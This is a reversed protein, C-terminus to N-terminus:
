MKQWNTYQNIELSWTNSKRPRHHRRMSCINSNYPSQISGFCWVKVKLDTLTIYFKPLNGGFISPLKGFIIIVYWSTCCKNDLSREASCPNASNRRFLYQVFNLDSNWSFHTCGREDSFFCADPSPPSAAKRPISYCYPRHSILCFIQKICFVIEFSTISSVSCFINLPSKMKETFSNCNLSIRLPPLLSPPPNM